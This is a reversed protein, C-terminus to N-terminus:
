NQCDLLAPQELHMCKFSVSFAKKGECSLTNISCVYVKLTSVFSKCVFFSVPIFVSSRRALRKWASKRPGNMAVNVTGMVLHHQIGQSIIGKRRTKAGGYSLM